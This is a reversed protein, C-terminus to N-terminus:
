EGRRGHERRTEREEIARAFSMIEYLGFVLLLVGSVIEISAVLRIIDSQPYIDGYGVTSITVLSFYLSQNFTVEAAEGNVIFNPGPSFRELIRYVAAFVIVTLSYLTLFAFAPAALQLLREFLQDFLIGIDILFICIDRSASLIFLAVLAMSIALALNTELVTPEAVPVLFSTASAVILPFLWKMGRGVRHVRATPATDVVSRIAERRMWVSAVFAIIPLLFSLAVVVPGALPFNSQVIFAFFCAYFAIANAFSVVFFRSGRFLWLFFGAVLLTGILVTAGVIGFRDTTGIAVLALVVATTALARVWSRDPLLMDVNV